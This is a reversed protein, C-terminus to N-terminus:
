PTHPTPSIIVRAGCGASSGHTPAYRPGSIFSFVLHSGTPSLFHALVRTRAHPHLVRVGARVFVPVPMPVHVGVRVFEAIPAATNRWARSTCCWLLCFPSPALAVKTAGEAVQAELRTLAEKLSQAMRRERGAEAAADTFKGRLDDMEAQHANTLVATAAETEAATRARWAVHRWQHLCLLVVGVVV